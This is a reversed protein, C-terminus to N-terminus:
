FNGDDDRIIVDVSCEPQGAPVHQPVATIHFLENDELMRDAVITVNLIYDREYPPIIDFDPFTKTTYYDIPEENGSHNGVFIIFIYM